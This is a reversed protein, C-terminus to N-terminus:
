LHRAQFSKGKVIEKKEPFVWDMSLILTNTSDITERINQEREPHYGALHRGCKLIIRKVYM